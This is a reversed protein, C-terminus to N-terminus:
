RTMLPCGLIQEFEQQKTLDKKYPLLKEKFERILSSLNVVETESAGRLLGITSHVESWLKVMAVEKADASSNTEMQVGDCESLRFHLADKKWRTSVYDVPITKMGNASLIWVIHRCLFGMREFMMCSCQTAQTGPNYEVNFSKKRISDKVVTVEVGDVEAYGVSKCTDTSCIVELQFEKFVERTYVDSANEEIPLHTGM